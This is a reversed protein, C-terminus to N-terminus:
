RVASQTCQNRPRTWTWKKTLGAGLHDFEKTAKLIIPILNAFPHIATGLKVDTNSGIDSDFVTMRCRVLNVVLCVWHSCNVNVPMYLARCNKWSRGRALKKGKAFAVLDPDVVYKAIGVKAFNPFHGDVLQSFHDSLIAVNQPFIDRYKDSRQRFRFLIEDVHQM